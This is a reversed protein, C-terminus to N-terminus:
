EEKIVIDANEKIKYTEFYLNEKPIWESVFRNALREGNRKTIREVQLDSDIDLFISLDAYNHFYPHLSYSGEVIMKDKFDIHKKDQISMVHCDFIHYDFSEKAKIPIIVEEYFREYDVNGGIEELRQPTRQDPQLFFDDMHVVPYQYFEHLLSALTSKGSGSRGEIVIVSHEELLDIKLIIDLVKIYEKKVIRYHPHYHNRFIESHSMVPYGKERYSTMQQHWQELTFPIWGEKIGNEVEQFSDELVSKNEVVFISKLFLKHLIKLHEEKLPELHVRVLEDSIDEYLIHNSDYEISHYEKLLNKYNEEEDVVLHGGGFASQYLYKIFDQVTSLPYMNFYNMWLEKM